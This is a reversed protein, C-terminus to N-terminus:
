LDHLSSRQFHLAEKGSMFGGLLEKDRIIVCLIEIRFAKFQFYWDDLMKRIWTEAALESMTNGVIRRAEYKRVREKWTDTCVQFTDFTHNWM